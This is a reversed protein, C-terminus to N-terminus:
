IGRRLEARGDAVVEIDGIGEYSVDWATGITFLLVIGGFGSEARERAEGGYLYELIERM